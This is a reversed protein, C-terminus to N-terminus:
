ETMQQRDRAATSLVTLLLTGLVMVIVINNNALLWDGYYHGLVFQGLIWAVYLVLSWPWLSAVAPLIGGPPASRAKLPRHIRDGLLGAIVGILPPFIGGGFLLLAISLLVLGLGGRKKQIYFASWIIVISGLVTALAGTILYSPVITMAPECANWSLEPVCPPGMSPIM